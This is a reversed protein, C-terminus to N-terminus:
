KTPVSSGVFLVFEFITLFDIVLKFGNFVLAGKLPFSNIVPTFVITSGAFGSM